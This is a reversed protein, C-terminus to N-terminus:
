LNGKNKPYASVILSTGLPFAIQKELGLIAALARGLLSTKGQKGVPYAKRLWKSYMLAIPILGAGFYRCREREFFPSLLQTMMSKNYRRYHGLMEDHYGFLWQMAPVTVYLVGDSTIMSAMKAVTIEPHEIHELVDNSIIVDYPLDPEHDEISSLAITLNKAGFEEKLKQSQNVAELDIDIADVVWDSNRALLINMEGSGCGANLIRLGSKTPLWNLIIEYKAMAYPDNSRINYDQHKYDINEM